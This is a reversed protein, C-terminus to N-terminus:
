VDRIRAIGDPWRTVPKKALNARNMIAIRKPDTVPDTTRIPFHYAAGGYQWWEEVNAQHFVFNVLKQVSDPTGLHAKDFCASLVLARKQDIPMSTNYGVARFDLMGLNDLLDEPLTQIKAKIRLEDVQAQDVHSLFDQLADCFAKTM